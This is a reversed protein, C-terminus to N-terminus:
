SCVVFIDILEVGFVIDPRSNCVYRLSLVNQNFLTGNFEKEDCYELLKVNSEVLSYLPDCNFKKFRKLVDVNYWNQHLIKM